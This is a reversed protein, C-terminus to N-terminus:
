AAGGTDLPELNSPGYIHLFSGEGHEDKVTHEVVIRVAGDSKTFVSRVVGSIKYEGTVKKVSQGIYFQGHQESTVEMMKGADPSHGTNMSELLALVQEYIPWDSEVVVGDLPTKGRLARNNNVVLALSDLAMKQQHDLSSEIDSLKFVLYRNELKFKSM